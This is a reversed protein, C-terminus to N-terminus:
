DENSNDYKALVPIKVTEGVRQVREKNEIVYYINAVLLEEDTMNHSNYLKLAGYVTDRPGFTHERLSYVKAM